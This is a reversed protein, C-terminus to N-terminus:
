LTLPRALASMMLSLSMLGIWLIRGDASKELFGDYVDRDSEAAIFIKVENGEKRVQWALDGSLSEFSVFLFKKSLGASGNARGNENSNEAQGNM